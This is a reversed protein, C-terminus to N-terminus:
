AGSRQTGLSFWVWSSVLSSFVTAKIHQPVPSGYTCVDPEGHDCATMTIISKDVSIKCLDFSVRGEFYRLSVLISFRYRFKHFRKGAHRLM